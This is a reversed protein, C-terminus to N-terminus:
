YFTEDIGVSCLTSDGIFQKMSPSSWGGIKVYDGFSAWNDYHAYWLPVSAASTCAGLSGMTSEWEYQSTYVGVAKGHSKVASILQNLYDCNSSWSYSTWSCGSSPNIEVDLWVMGFNAGNSEGDEVVNAARWEAFTSEHYGNVEYSDSVVGASMGRASPQDSPQDIIPEELVAASNIGLSSMLQNVQDTASKGRCPFMYVDVYPIGASRANNINSYGNSDVAGYSCYARPIAFNIGNNKMCSFSSTSTAQSIDVGYTAQAYQVSLSALIALM